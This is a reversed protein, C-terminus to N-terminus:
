DQKVCERFNCDYAFCFPQSCHVLHVLMLMFVVSTLDVPLRVAPRIRLASLSGVLVFWM